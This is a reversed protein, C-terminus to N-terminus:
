TQWLPIPYLEPTQGAEERRLERFYRSSKKRKKRGRKWSVEEGDSQSRPKPPYSRLPGTQSLSLYIYICKWVHRKLLFFVNDTSKSPTSSKLDLRGNKNKEVVARASVMSICLHVMLHFVFLRRNTVTPVKMRIRWITLAPLVLNITLHIQDLIQLHDPVWGLSPLQPWHLRHYFPAAYWSKNRKIVM